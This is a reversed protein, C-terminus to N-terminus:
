RPMILVTAGIAELEQKLQNAAIQSLNRQLTSPLSEVLEKAERLGLGTQERVINIAAIKQNGPLHELIVDFTESATTEGSVPLPVSRNPNAELQGTSPHSTITGAADLHFYYSFSGEETVNYAANFERACDDLYAKAAQGDLGTEMSFKLVTIYGNQSQLIRFFTARLRDREAKQNRSLASWIMWSGLATPPLGFFVLAAFAGERDDMSRKSDLAQVTGLITIPVGIGLLIGAAIRTLLKM